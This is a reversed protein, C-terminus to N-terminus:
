KNLLPYPNVTEGDWYRKPDGILWIAFHLHCNGPGANGTDGVYAITEGRRAARGEALGDAYRQLHAYYYILRDDPSRQYITTGGRESQFLKVIAGDTAAFVPTGCPAAIDLANHVRGAARAESYTDHLQEARVGAVPLLLGATNPPVVQPAASRAPENTNGAPPTPASASPAANDNAAPPAASNVNEAPVNRNAAPLPVPQVPTTRYRVSLWGVLAGLVLLTVVALLLIRARTGLAM